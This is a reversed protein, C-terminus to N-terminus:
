FELRWNLIPVLGLQTDFQLSKTASDYFPQYLNTRNFLNQIDISVTSTTRRRNKTFSIRTDFRFYNPLQEEYSREYIRVTTNRKKSQALDIPVYRNGGAWLSRVNVALTNTKNRSMKWEKGLLINQVFKGNFRSNREVGDRATYKAQYFSTTLIFYFGKTLFKEITFDLGYNRGTGDSVLSDTTYGNMLNLLSETRWVASKTNITGIPVDYHRQYYAEAQLRWDDRPRFEYGLVFHASKLLALNKNAFSITGEKGKVEAFYTSLAETRSHIGFGASLAHRPALTWRLGGRPELSSQQNLALLTAHFGANLTLVPSIRYKWQSYAQLLYTDGQQNLTTSVKTGDTTRNLLQFRLNSVIIGTRLSHQANFKHNFQLSLRYAQNTFNEERIYVQQLRSADYTQRNAAWSLTADVFSKESIFHTFNLGAVARDSHFADNQTTRHRIQRSLGGMGWLSVVSRQTVPFFLKFAGDQFDPAADGIIQIGAKKLMELTSYRYNVLYSAKSKASFPGEAAIDAGLVGVQLAYERKEHNGKRLKLDFVGSTANGYEAPFAGTFFDSNGLMNVSLASIGGGTSGEEAFHNPNPIEVGEMRWLVGKPSNGRIILANSQESNGAVGAYTLAMRAPDNIAAAYRKVQEVSFSRASVTAMDNLATGNQASAKVTVADLQQLSEALRITLDIEKGTGVVLEQVLGNEYGLFTIKLTHRGVPIDLIKFFGNADSQGGKIPQVSTVIISAGALPQRSEADIVQGKITQTLTQAFTATSTFLNFVIFSIFLRM